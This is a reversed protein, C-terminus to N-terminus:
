LNNLFNKLETLNCILVDWAYIGYKEGKTDDDLFEQIDEYICFYDKEDEAHFVVLVKEEKLKFRRETTCQYLLRQGVPLNKNLM